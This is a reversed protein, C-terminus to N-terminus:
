GAGMASVRAHARALLAPAARHLWAETREDLSIEQLLATLQARSTTEDATLQALDALLELPMSLLQQGKQERVLTAAGPLDGERLRELLGVTFRLTPLFMSEPARTELAKVEKWAEEPMGLLMLATGKEVRVIQEFPASGIRIKKLQELALDSWRLADRHEGYLNAISALRQAGAARLLPLRSALFGQFIESAEQTEGRTLALDARNLLQQNKRSSRLNLALAVIFVGGGGLVPLWGLHAPSPTPASPPPVRTSGEPRVSWLGVFGAILLFWLALAGPRRQRPRLAQPAGPLPLFPDKKVGRPAPVPAPAAPDSDDAQPQQLLLPTMTPAIKLLWATTPDTPLTAEEGGQARYATAEPISWPRLLARALARSKGSVCLLLRQNKRLHQRLAPTEGARLLLLARALAAMAPVDIQGDLNDTLNQLDEEAQSADGQLAAVVARSARSSAQLVVNHVRFSVGLPLTLALDLLRRSEALDGRDFALISRLYTVNLRVWRIWLSRELEEAIAQARSTDQRDLAAVAEQLRPQAFLVPGFSIFIVIALALLLLAAPLMKLLSLGLAGGLLLALAAVFPLGRKLHHTV